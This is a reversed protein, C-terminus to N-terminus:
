SIRLLFCLPRHKGQDKVQNKNEENEEEEDEDAEEAADLSDDLVELNGTKNWFLKVKIRFTAQM